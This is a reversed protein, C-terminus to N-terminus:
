FFFQGSGTTQMFYIETCGYDSSPAPVLTDGPCWSITSEYLRLSKYPKLQSLEVECNGSDCGCKKAAVIVDQVNPIAAIIKSRLEALGAKYPIVFSSSGFKVVVPGGTHKGKTDYSFWTSGSSRCKIMQKENSNAGPSSLDATCGDSTTMGDSCTFPGYTVPDRKKVLVFSAPVGATRTGFVFLIRPVDTFM